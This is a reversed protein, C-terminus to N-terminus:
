NPMKKQKMAATFADDEFEEDAEAVNDYDFPEKRSVIIDAIQSLKIEAQTVRDRLELIQATDDQHRGELDSNKERLVRIEEILKSLEPPISGDGDFVQIENSM